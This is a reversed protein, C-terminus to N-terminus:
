ATGPLEGPPADERRKEKRGRRKLESDRAPDHM